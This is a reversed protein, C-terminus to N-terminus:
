VWVHLVKEGKRIKSQQEGEQIYAFNPELLPLTTFNSPAPQFGPSTFFIEYTWRKHESICFEM